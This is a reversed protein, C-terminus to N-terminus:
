PQPHPSRRSPPGSDYPEPGEAVARLTPPPSGATDLPDGATALLGRAQRLLIRLSDEDMQDCMDALVPPVATRRRPLALKFGMAEVLRAPRLTPLARLLTDYLSPDIVKAESELRSVASHDSLGLIEALTVQSM